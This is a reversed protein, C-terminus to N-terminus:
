ASDSIRQDTMSFKVTDVKVHDTGYKEDYTQIEDIVDDLQEYDDLCVSLDYYMNLIGQEDMDHVSKVQEEDEIYADFVATTGWSKLDDLLISMVEITPEEPPTYGIAEYMNPLYNQYTFEKIWGTLEGNEDKVFEDNELAAEDLDLLELFKSNVWSAHDSFDRVLFRVTMVFKM